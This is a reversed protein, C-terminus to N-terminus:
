ETKKGFAESIKEVKPKIFIQCYPEGPHKDYYDAHYDEAAFFECVKETETVLPKSYSKGISLLHKDIRRKQQESYYFIASRYQTGVDNGQRNLSTPDHIEFFVDLIGELSVVHSDYEVLVVEAHGTKGKCVDDYKPNRSNGGCYGVATSLVGEVRKM